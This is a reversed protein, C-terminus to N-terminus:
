RCFLLSLGVSSLMLIFLLTHSLLAVTLWSAAPFVGALLSIALHDQHPAVTLDGGRHTGTSHLQSATPARLRQGHCQGMRLLPHRWTVTTKLHGQFSLLHFTTTTPPM